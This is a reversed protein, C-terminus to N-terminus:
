GGIARWSIALSRLGYAISRCPSHATHAMFPPINHFDAANECPMRMDRHGFLFDILKEGAAPDRAQRGRAFVPVRVDGWEPVVPVPPAHVEGQSRATLRALVQLTVRAAPYDHVHIVAAEHSHAAVQVLLRHAHN